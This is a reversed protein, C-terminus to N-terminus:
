WRQAEAGAALLFARSPVVNAGLARADDAVERDSSVVLVPRPAPVQAVLAVIRADASEEGVSFVVRVSRPTAGAPAVVDTGDFVVTLRRDFRAGVGAAVAVLWARQDALSLLPRGAQDKTVNYGDILVTLDPVQLLAIVATAGDPAVGPPLVAPRGATAPAVQRPVVAGAARGANAGGAGATPAPRSPDQAGPRALPAAPATGPTGTQEEGARAPGPAALAAHLEASLAALTGAVERVRRDDVRLREEAEEARRRLREAARTGRRREDELQETLEAVRAELAAVRAALREQEAVAGRGRQEAVDARRRQADREARADGLEDLLRRRADEGSQEQVRRAAEAAARDRAALADAGQSAVVALDDWRGRAALGAVAAEAGHRLVLRGADVDRADEWLAPDLAAGVAERLRPDRALATAVARRPVDGAMREPKWTAFPRLEVPVEARDVRDAARRVARALV